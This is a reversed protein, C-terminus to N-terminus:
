FFMHPKQIYEQRINNFIMIYMLDLM